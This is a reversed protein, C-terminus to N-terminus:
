KIKSEEDYNVKRKKNKQNREGITEQKERNIEADLLEQVEVPLLSLDDTDHIYQPTWEQSGKQVLVHEDGAVTNGFDPKSAKPQYSM